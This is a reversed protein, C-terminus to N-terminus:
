SFLQPLPQLWPSCSVHRKKERSRGALEDGAPMLGVLVSFSWWIYLGREHMVKGLPPMCLESTAKSTEQLGLEKGLCFTFSLGQLTPLLLYLFPLSQQFILPFFSLLELLHAPLHQTLSQEQQSSIWSSHNQKIEQESSPSRSAGSGQWNARKIQKCLIGLLSLPTLPPFTHFPLGIAIFVLLPTLLDAFLFVLALFQMGDLYRKRSQASDWAETEKQKKYPSPSGCTLAPLRVNPPM